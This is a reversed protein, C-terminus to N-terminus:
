VTNYETRSCRREALCSTLIRCHISPHLLVHLVRKSIRRVRGAHHDGRNSLDLMSPMEVVLKEMRGVLSDHHDMEVVRGARNLIALDESNISHATQTGWSVIACRKMGMQGLANTFGDFCGGHCFPVATEPHELCVKWNIETAGPDRSSLEEMPRKQNRVFSCMSVRLHSRNQLLEKMLLGLMRPLVPFRARLDRHKLGRTKVAM